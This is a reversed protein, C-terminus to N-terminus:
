PAPQELAVVAARLETLHVARIAVAGPAIAPDTYTPATRGAAAYAAQLATRLDSLHAATIPTVEPVLANDSWPFAALGERQRLVDIRTRLEGIHIARVPTSGAVLPDDNFRVGAQRIRVLKGAIRLSGTRETGSNAAVEYRVEQDVTGGASRSTSTRAANGTVSDSTEELVTIWPVNSYATWAGTAPATVTARSPIPLPGSQTSTLGRSPSVDRRNVARLNGIGAQTAMTAQM